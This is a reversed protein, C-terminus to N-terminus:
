CVPNGRYLKGTSDLCANANGSGSLTSITMDKFISVANPSIMIPLNHNTFPNQTPASFDIFWFPMSVNYDQYYAIASIAAYQSINKKYWKNNKPDFYANANVSLYGGYTDNYSDFSGYFAGSPEEFEFGSSNAITGINAYLVKLNGTMMDGTKNVKTNDPGSISFLALLALILAVLGIKTNQDEMINM